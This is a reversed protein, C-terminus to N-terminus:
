FLSKITNKTRRILSPKSKNYYFKEFSINRRLSPHNLPFEMCSNIPPYEELSIDSITNTAGPGIGINSVLNQNPVISYLNNSYLAYLWQYSWAWPDNNMCHLDFMKIMGNRHFRDQIWYKMFVKKNKERWTPMNLDYHLWARKWTAWGWINAISCFNYSSIDDYEYHNCGSIHGVRGDDNYKELLEECFHFFSIQPLTDDELVILRDVYQFVENLGSSVRKALGFNNKAYIRQLDCDWNISREVENRVSNIKKLESPDKPGDAIIFLQIPKVESIRELVKLTSESRKYIFLAIPTSFSM